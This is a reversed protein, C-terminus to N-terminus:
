PLPGRDQRDRAVRKRCRDAAAAAAVDDDLSAERVASLETNVRTRDLKTLSPVLRDKIWALTIADGRVGGTDGAAADSIVRRTWVAFRDRDVGIPQRYQLQLDLTALETQLALDRARNREHARVAHTLSNVLRQTPPVLRPPVHTTDRHASWQAALTTAAAIATPWDRRGSARYAIMAAALMEKLTHPVARHLSDTPVALALGETDGNSETTLFEGYGPAFIKNSPPADTHIERAIMAGHVPGRPGRVTVGVKAIQVEEFVLGPVNESRNVQGPRPRAPMIMAAPADKGALWSEDTSTILGNQYDYVDEGLYWVSGDDAQAYRDIATEEIRGALFATYQSILVRVCQGPRWEVIRTEPMLTTEVRFPKGDVTGNLVASHLASIPFLPNTVSTPNNFPGAYLDVRRSMPALPLRDLGAARIQAPTPQPVRVRATAACATGTSDARGGSSASPHSAACATAAVAVSLAATVISHPM